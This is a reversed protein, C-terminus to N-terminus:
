SGQQMRYIPLGDSNSPARPELGEFYQHDAERLQAVVANHLKFLLEEGTFYEGNDANLDLSLDAYEDEAPDIVGFYEIRVRPYQLVVEHPLWSHTSEPGQWELVKQSFEQRDSFADGRFAWSVDRMPWGDRRDKRPALDGM